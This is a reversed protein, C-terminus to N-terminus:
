SNRVTFQAHMARLERLRQRSLESDVRKLAEQSYKLFDKVPTPKAASGPFRATSWDRPQEMESTAAAFLAEVIRDSPDPDADGSKAYVLHQKKAIWGLGLAVFWPFTLDTDENIVKILMELDRDADPSEEKVFWKPFNKVISSFSNLSETNVLYYRDKAHRLNEAGPSAASAEVLARTDSEQTNFLGSSVRTLAPKAHARVEKAPIGKLYGKAKPGLVTSVLGGATIGLGSGIWGIGFSVLIGLHFAEAGLFGLIGGVVGASYYLPKPNQATAAVITLARHLSPATNQFRDVELNSHASPLIGISLKEISHLPLEIADAACGLSRLAEEWGSLSLEAQARNDFKIVFRPVQPSQRDGTSLSVRAWPILQAPSESSRRRLEFGVASEETSTKLPGAQGPVQANLQSALAEALHSADVPTTGLTTGQVPRGTPSRVAMQPANGLWKVGIVADGSAKRELQRVSKVSSM